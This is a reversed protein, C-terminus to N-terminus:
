DNKAKILQKATNNDTSQSPKSIEASNDSNSLILVQTESLNQLYNEVDANIRTFTDIPLMLHELEKLNSITSEINQSLLSQFLTIVNQSLEISQKEISNGQCIAYEAGILPILDDRSMELANVTMFHNVISQNISLLEQRMLQNTIQFRNVKNKLVHLSTQTELFLAYESDKNIDLGQLKEELKKIESQIVECHRNNNQRYAEIYKRIGYYSALEKNLTKINDNIALKLQEIKDYNIVKKPEVTPKSGFIKAFFGQKPLEVPEEKYIDNSISNITAIASANTDSLALQPLENYIYKTHMSLFNGFNTISEIDSIDISDTRNELMKIRDDITLLEEYNKGSVFEQKLIEYSVNLVACINELLPSSNISKDFIRPLLQTENCESRKYKSDDQEFYRLYHDKFIKYHNYSLSIVGIDDFNTKLYAINCIDLIDIIRINQDTFFHWYSLYSYPIGLIMSLLVIDDDTKIIESKNNSQYNRIIGDIILVREIYYRMQCNAIFNELQKIQNQEEQTNLFCEYKDDFHDYTDKTGHNKGYYSNLEKNFVNHIISKITIDKRPKDKNIGGFIYKKYKSSMLDIDALINTISLNNANINYGSALSVVDIDLYKIFNSIEKDTLFEVAMLLALFERLNEQVDPQQRYILKDIISANKIYQKVEESIGAFVEEEKALNEKAEKEKLFKSLQKYFDKELDIDENISEFINELIVSKTFNRNCLNVIIDNIDISSKSKNKNIGDKIFRDFKDVLLLKDLKIKRIEEESIQINLLSLVKELTVGYESFFTNIVGNYYCNSIYLALTITDNDSELLEQNYSNSKMKELILQYTKCTFEIFERPDRALDKYLSQIYEQIYLDKTEKIKDTVQKKFDKLAIIPVNKDALLREIIHSGTYKFDFVKELIDSVTIDKKLGSNDCYKIMYESIVYVNPKYLSPITDYKAFTSVFSYSIKKDELLKTIVKKESIKEKEYIYTDQYNYAALLMAIPVIDENSSNFANKAKLYYYIQSATELYSIVSVSFDDYLKKAFLQQQQFKHNSNYDEIQKRIPQLSSFGNFVISNVASDENKYKDFSFLIIDLPTLDTYYINDSLRPIISCLYSFATNKNVDKPIKSLMSSYSDRNFEFSSLLNNYSSKETLVYILIFLIRGYRNTLVESSSEKDKYFLLYDDWYYNIYPLAKELFEKTEYPVLKNFEEYTM